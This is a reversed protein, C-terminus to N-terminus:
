GARALVAELPRQLSVELDYGHAEAVAAWHQLRDALTTIADAGAQALPLAIQRDLDPAARVLAHYAADADGDLRPVDGRLFAEVYGGELFGTLYARARDFVLALALGARAEGLRALDGDVDAGVAAGVAAAGARATRTHAALTAGLRARGAAMAEGYGADLLAILYDRDAATAVHQAWPLRRPQVLAIVEAAARRHLATVAEALARRETAVAQDVFTLAAGQLVESAAVAATAAAAAQARLGTTTALAGGGLLRLRRLCADRKLQRAQTFFRAELAGALAAWNGDDGAAAGDGAGKWALARRASFPVVEEVLEGLTSRVFEVVEAEDAGSLQDRKNLVGLVRRGEGRIAELARRESAKGGQGATFVWVVADARAIFARATAEHEPQISNLGPTDVINIAQLQPLPVLIEVRDIARADDATLARLHAFLADWGLETSRGAQDIIRGGRERGYRVVNITATTPTIGTPAVEAGIFANVFSSKGSSFEGMVTVLLPQDLDAAARSVDGTLVALEPRSAVIRELVQALARAEDDAGVSAEAASAGRAAPSPAAPPAVVLGAQADALLGRAGAHGPTTRLVERAREAAARSDGSALALHGLGVLAAGHGAAGATTLLVRAADVQGESVLGLGRAVLATPDDPVRALLDNGWRVQRAADRAATAVEVAARLVGVDADAAGLSLALEYSTLAGDLNGIRRHAEAARAHIEGRRPDLQLAELFYPHARMPERAALAADGLGLLVELRTQKGLPTDDGELLARARGLQESALAPAGDALAVRGLALYALAPGPEHEVARALHRRAEDTPGADALLAEGLAARADTDTPAEAVAKRLERVAKDLDGLHRWATGLGQYADALLPRDGGAETVARTLSTIAAQYHALALLAQGHGLLASPDGPRARLAQELPPLAQDPRRVSLRAMGLLILAQGHDPKDALLAELVDIAAFADGSALLGRAQAVQERYDDLLLDGALDSIRREIRTWLSM